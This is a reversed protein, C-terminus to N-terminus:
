PLMLAQKYEPLTMVRSRYGYLELVERIGDDATVIFPVRGNLTVDSIVFTVQYDWIWNWRKRMSKKSRMDINKTCIEYCVWKTFGVCLPYNKLLAECFIILEERTMDKKLALSATIIIAAAVQIEFEDGLISELTKTRLADSDARPYAQAANAKMGTILDEIQKVWDEESTKVWSKILSFTNPIKHGLLANTVSQKFDYIVGGVNKVQLVLHEPITGFFSRLIHLYPHPIIIPQDSEEHYIHHAMATIGSLCDAYNPGGEGEVLSGLLEIGTIVLGAGIINNAAEAKRLEDIMAIIEPENKGSCLLRYSNTDFIAAYVTGEPYESIFCM